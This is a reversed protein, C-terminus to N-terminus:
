KFLRDRVMSILSSSGLDEMTLNCQTPAEASGKATEVKLILRQGKISAVKIQLSEVASGTTLKVRAAYGQKPLKPPASTTTLVLERAHDLRCLTQGIKVPDGQKVIQTVVAAAAATARQSLTKKAQAEVEKNREALKGEMETVEKPLAEWECFKLKLKLQELHWAAEQKRQECSPQTEEETCSQELEKVQQELGPKLGKFRKEDEPSGSVKMIRLLEEDSKLRTRLRALEQTGAVDELELLLAGDDVLAGAKAEVKKVTGALTAKIPDLPVRAVKCPLEVPRPVQILFGAAAAGGLLLVIVILAILGGRGKKKKTTPGDSAMSILELMTQAQINEPNLELITQLMQRAEDFHGDRILVSATALLKGAPKKAPMGHGPPPVQGAHESPPRGPRSPEITPGSAEINLSPDSPVPQVPPRAPPPATPAAPAGRLAAQEVPMFAQPAPVPTAPPRAPPLPPPPPGPARPAPRPPTSRPPVLVPPKAQAQAERQALLESVDMPAVATDAGDEDDYDSAEDVVAPDRVGTPGDEDVDDEVVEEDDPLEVVVPPVDISGVLRTPEDDDIDDLPVSPDPAPMPALAGFPPDPEFSPKAAPLPEPEPEPEPLNELQELFGAKALKSLLGKITPVDWAVGQERALKLLEEIKAPCPDSLLMAVTSENDDLGVRSKTSMSALDVPHSGTGVTLRVDDKLRIYRM